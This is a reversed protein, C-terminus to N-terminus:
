QYFLHLFIHLVQHSLLKVQDFLESVNSAQILLFHLLQFITCPPFQHITLPQLITEDFLFKVFLTTADSCLSPAVACTFHYNFVFLPNKSHWYLSNEIKMYHLRIRFVIFYCCKVYLYPKLNHLNCFLLQKYFVM